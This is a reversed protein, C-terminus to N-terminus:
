RDHIEDLWIRLRLAWFEFAEKTDKWTNVEGPSQYEKGTQRDIAAAIRENTLSDLFEAEMSASGVNVYTQIGAAGSGGSGARYTVSYEKSPVVETIALRMRMVNKGPKDVLKYSGQLAEDIAQRFADSMKELVDARVGQYKADEKFYFVVPDMLIHHYNRFNVGEKMYARAVGGKAGPQFEPYNGLFGSYTIQQKACGSALFLTFCIIVTLMGKLSSKMKVEKNPKGTKFFLFICNIISDV